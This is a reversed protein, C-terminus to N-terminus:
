SLPMSEWNLDVFHENLYKRISVLDAKSTMDPVHEKLPISKMSHPHDSVMNLVATPLEKELRIPNIPCNKLYPYISDYSFKFLNFSVRVIGSVDRAKEIDEPTPKEIFDLLYGANDIMTVSLSSVREKSFEFGDRDYNIWAGDGPFERILKLAHKSYLNDSNCLCFTSHEWEKYQDTAHFVADATGWPKTRGEPVPQIAYSIDLGHFDNHRDNTGYYDRFAEAQEGIVVIIEKFGSGKLNSLLYDLFPVQEKGFRIMGKSAENAQKLLNKDLRVDTAPKKMRSSIGAAMIIMKETM